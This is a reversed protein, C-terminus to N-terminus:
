NRRDLRECLLAASAFAYLKQWPSRDRYYLVPLTASLLALYYPKADDTRLFRSRVPRRLVSLAQWAKDLEIGVPEPVDNVQPCIKESLDLSHRSGDGLIEDEFALIAAFVDKGAVLGDGLLGFKIDAELRAIDQVTPGIHTHPFDILWIKTKDGDGEILINGAHFDGHVISVRGALDRSDRSLGVRNRSLFKSDVWDTFATENAFVKSTWGLPNPFTKDSFNTLILPEQYATANPIYTEILKAVPEDELSNKMQELHRKLRGYEEYLYAESLHEINTPRWWSDMVTLLKDLISPVPNTEKAKIHKAIKYYEAFTQPDNTELQAYKYLIAGYQADTPGLDSKSLWFDLPEGAVHNTINQIHVAFNRNEQDINRASDFKLVRLVRYDLKVLFAGGKPKVGSFSKIFIVNNVKIKAFISLMSQLQSYMSAGDLESEHWRKALVDLGHVYPLTSLARKQSKPTKARLADIEKSLASSEAKLIAIKRALEKNNVQLDNIVLGVIFIALALMTAAIAPGPHIYSIKGLWFVGAMFALGIFLSINRTIPNLIFGRIKTWAGQM